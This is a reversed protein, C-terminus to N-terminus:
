APFLRQFSEPTHIECNSNHMWVGPCRDRITQWLRLVDSVECVGQLPSGGWTVPDTDFLTMGVGIHKEGFRWEAWWQWWDPSRPNPVTMGPFALVADAVVQPPYEILDRLDLSSGPPDSTPGPIFYWEGLSVMHM